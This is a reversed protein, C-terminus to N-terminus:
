WRCAHQRVATYTVGPPPAVTATGTTSSTDQASTLTPAGAAPTTLSDTNSAPVPKGGIVAEATVTYPTNPQLGDIPCVTTTCNKTVCTGGSTPCVKVTYYDVPSTSNVPPNLTVM